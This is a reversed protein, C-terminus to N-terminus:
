AALLEKAKSEVEQVTRPFDVMFRFAAQGPKRPVSTVNERGDVWYVDSGIAIYRCESLPDRLHKRMFQVAQRIAQTSIGAERLERVLRLVVLDRFDYRRDTGVGNADAITPKVLGTKAWYDITRHSVGTIRSAQSTSFACCFESSKSSNKKHNATTRQHLSL